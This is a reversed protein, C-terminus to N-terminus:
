VSSIPLRSYTAEMTRGRLDPEKAMAKAISINVAIVAKECVLMFSLGVADGLAPCAPTVTTETIPEPKGLPIM